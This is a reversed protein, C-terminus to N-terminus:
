STRVPVTVAIETGRGNVSSVELRGGLQEARERMGLLGFHREREGGADARELGRGDDRVHLRVSGPEFRLEVEVESARAHRVVNTLAEQGIRFLNSEVATSLAQPDGRTEVRLRVGTGSTLDQGLHALAAALDRGAQAQARLRWV